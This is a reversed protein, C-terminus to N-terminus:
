EKRSEVRKAMERSDRVKVEVRAEAIERRDSDPKGVSSENAADHM